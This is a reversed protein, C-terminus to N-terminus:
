KNSLFSTILFAISTYYDCNFLIAVQTITIFYKKTLEFYNIQMFFAKTNSDFFSKEEMAKTIEKLGSKTTNKEIDIVYGSGDYAGLEGTIKIIM